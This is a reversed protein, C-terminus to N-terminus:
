RHLEARPAALVAGEERFRDAFDGRLPGHPFLGRPIGPGPVRLAIRQKPHGRHRGSPGLRQVLLIPSPSPLPLPIRAGGGRM